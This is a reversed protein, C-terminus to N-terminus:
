SSPKIDRQKQGTNFNASVPCHMEFGLEDPRRPGWCNTLQLFCVSKRKVMDNMFVRRRGLIFPTERSWQPTEFEIVYNVAANKM